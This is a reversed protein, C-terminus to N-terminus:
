IKDPKCKCMYVITIDHREDFIRSYVNVLRSEIVELGTKEKVERVLAEELMEGKRIRGGPFWWCDQVPFDKRRFFLFSDDYL